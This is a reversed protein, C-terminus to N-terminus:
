TNIAQTQKKIILESYIDHIDSMCRDVMTIYANSM